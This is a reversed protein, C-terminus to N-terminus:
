RGSWACAQLDVAEVHRIQFAALPSTRSSIWPKPPSLSLKVRMARKERRVVADDNGIQGAKAVGRAVRLGAVGHGVLHRAHVAEHRLQADLTKVQAAIRHAAEDAAWNATGYPCMTCLRHSSSGAPVGAECSNPWAACNRSSRRWHGSSTLRTSSKSSVMRAVVWLAGNRGRKARMASPRRPTASRASCVRM